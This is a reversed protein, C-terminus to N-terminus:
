EETHVFLDRWSEDLVTWHDSANGTGAIVLAGHGAPCVYETSPQDFISSSWVGIPAPMRLQAFCQLCRGRHDVILLWMAAFCILLFIWVSFLSTTSFAPGRPAIVATIAIRLLALGLLVAALRAGLLASYRVGGLRRILVFAMGLLAGTLGVIGGFALERSRADEILPETKLGEAIWLSEVEGAIRRLESEASAVTEGPALLGVFGVPLSSQDPPAFFRIRDSVFWFQRPMVGAVTYSKQDIVVAKGIISSDSHFRTRWFEHSLIATSSTDADTFDRGLMPKSGLISLMNRSVLMGLTPNRIGRYVVIDELTQAELRVLAAYRRSFTSARAGSFHMRHNVSVLRSANSLPLTPQNLGGSFATIVIAASLFAIETRLPKRFLDFGRRKRETKLIWAADRFGGWACSFLEQSGAGAQAKHRLEARWERKWEARKSRPLICAAIAIAFQCPLPIM